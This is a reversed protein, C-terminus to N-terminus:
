GLSGAMATLAGGSGAARGPRWRDCARRRCGFRSGRPLLRPNPEDSGGKDGRLDLDPEPRTAPPCGGLHTSLHPEDQRWRAPVTSSTQPSTDRHPTRPPRPRHQLLQPLHGARTTPRQLPPLPLSRVRTALVRRPDDQAAGRRARQLKGDLLLLRDVPAQAVYLEEVPLDCLDLPQDGGLRKARCLDPPQHRGQRSTIAAAVKMAATPSMLRNRV